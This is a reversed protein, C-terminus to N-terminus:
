SGYKFTQLKFPLSLELSSGAILRTKNTREETELDPSPFESIDYPKILGNIGM